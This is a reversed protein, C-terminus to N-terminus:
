IKSKTYRPMCKVMVMFINHQLYLKMEEKSLNNEKLTLEVKVIRPALISFFSKKETELIKVNVQNESVKLIALGKEIAEKTTNGETIISKNSM